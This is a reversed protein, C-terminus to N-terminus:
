LNVESVEITGLSRFYSEVVSETWDKSLGGVFLRRFKVDELDIKYSDLDEERDGRRENRKKKDSLRIKNALRILQNTIDRFIDKRLSNQDVIHAHSSKDKM